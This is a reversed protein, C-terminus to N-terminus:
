VGVVSKAAVVVVVVVSIAPENGNGSDWVVRLAAWDVKWVVEVDIVPAWCPSLIKLLPDPIVRLSCFEIVSTATPITWCPILGTLLLM